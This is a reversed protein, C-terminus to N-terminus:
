ARRAPGHREDGGGHRVRARWLPRLPRRLRARRLDGMGKVITNNSGTLDASGGVMEPIAPVLAALAAGSHQRTAAAPKEAEAKAIHADLAAFADAPLDGAMAREFEAASAALGGARAEWAKRVKAGRAAPPAGPSRRGRRARRLARRTWGM